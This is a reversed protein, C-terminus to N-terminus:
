SRHIIFDWTDKWRLRLLDKASLPVTGYSLATFKRFVYIIFILWTITSFKMVYLIAANTYRKRFNFM